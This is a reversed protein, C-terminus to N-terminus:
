KKVSELIQKMLSGVDSPLGKQCEAYKSEDLDFVGCNVSRYVFQLTIRNDGDDIIGNVTSYNSGLAGEGQTTICAPKGNILISKFNPVGPGRDSSDCNFLGIAKNVVMTPPWQYPYQYDGNRPPTQPYVFSYGFSEDEYVQMGSNDISDEDTMPCAAFECNPGSRGVASGDPCLMAELTCQEQNGGNSTPQVYFSYGFVVGLGL